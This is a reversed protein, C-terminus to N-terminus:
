VGYFCVDERSNSSNDTGVEIKEPSDCYGASSKFLSIEDVDSIRDSIEEVLIQSKVDEVTQEHHQESDFRRDSDSLQTSKSLTQVPVVSTSESSVVQPTISILIPTPTRIIIEPTPKVHEKIDCDNVAESCTSYIEEIEDCSPSQFSTYEIENSDKANEHQEFQNIDKLFVM